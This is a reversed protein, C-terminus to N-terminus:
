PPANVRVSFDPKQAERTSTRMKGRKSEIKGQFEILESGQLGANGMEQFVLHRQAAILGVFNCKSQGGV